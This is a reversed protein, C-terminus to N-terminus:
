VREVRRHVVIESIRNQEDRIVKWREENQYLLQPPTSGVVSPSSRGRLYMYALAGGAVAVLSAVVILKRDM